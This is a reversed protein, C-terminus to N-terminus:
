EADADESGDCPESGTENSYVGIQWCENWHKDSLNRIMDAAALLIPDVEEYAKNKLYWVVFEEDKFPANDSNDPVEIIGMKAFTGYGCSPCVGHLWKKFFRGQRLWFEGGCHKCTGLIKMGDEDFVVNESNIREGKELRKNM